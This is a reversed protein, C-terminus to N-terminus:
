IVNIIFILTSFLQPCSELIFVAEIITPISFGGIFEHYNITFWDIMMFKNFSSSTFREIGADDNDLDYEDELATWLEKASKYEYYIDYLSDSLASLIKHLCHYNIEDPKLYIYSSPTTPPTEAPSSRISSPKPSPVHITDDIVSILGLTILWYKM